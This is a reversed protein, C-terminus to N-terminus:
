IIFLIKILQSELKCLQNRGKEKAQYMAQDSQNFVMGQNKSQNFACLLVEVGV